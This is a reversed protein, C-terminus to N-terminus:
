KRGLLSDTTCGLLDAMRCLVELPPDTADTEYKTYTTRHVTLLRAMQQQTYGMKKRWARLNHALYLLEM